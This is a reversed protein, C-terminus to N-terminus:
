RNKKNQKADRIMFIEHLYECLQRDDRLDRTERLNSYGECTVLHHNTDMLGCGEAECKWLSKMYATDSKFSMKVHQLM